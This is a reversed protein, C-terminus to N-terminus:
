DRAASKPVPPLEGTDAIEIAIDALKRHLAQSALRLLNFAEDRSVKHKQMLVGMAVGIDRSNQLARLLNNAKDRATANAVALAAHTALLMGVAESSDEFAAPQRSYVNLGAVLEPETETFLRFSLMSVIGTQEVAQRGFVPWREDNGLDSVTFTTDHVIADVCPGSGLEYQIADVRRVLDDTAAPTSFRGSRGVSVGAMEAGPVTEVATRVVVDLTTEPEAAALDREIKAFLAALEAPTYGPSTV